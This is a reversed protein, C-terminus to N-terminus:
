ENVIFGSAAVTQTSKGYDGTSIFFEEKSTLFLSPLTKRYAQAEKHLDSARIAADVAAYAWMAMIETQQENVWRGILQAGHTLQNPLLYTHFFHTFTEYLSSEIQYIKRRYLM